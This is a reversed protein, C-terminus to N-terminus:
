IQGSIIQWLNKKLTQCVKSKNLINLKEKKGVSKWKKGEENKTYVFLWDVEIYLSLSNILQNNNLFYLITNEQLRTTKTM